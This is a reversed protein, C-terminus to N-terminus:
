EEGDEGGKGGLRHHEVATVMLVVGNATHVPELGLAHLFIVLNSEAHENLYTPYLLHDTPTQVSEPIGCGKVCLM